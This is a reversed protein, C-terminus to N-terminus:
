KKNNPKRGRRKRQPKEEVVLEGNIDRNDGTKEASGSDKANDEYSEPVDLEVRVTNVEDSVEMRESSENSAPNSKVDMDANEGNEKKQKPNFYNLAGDFVDAVKDLTDRSSMAYGYLHPSYLFDEKSVYKGIFNLYVKQDSSIFGHLGSEIDVFQKEILLIDM